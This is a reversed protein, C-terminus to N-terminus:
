VEQEDGYVIVPPDEGESRLVLNLRGSRDTDHGGQLAHDDQTSSFAEHLLRNLESFPLPEVGNLLALLTKEDLLKNM